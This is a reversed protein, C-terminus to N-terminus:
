AVGAENQKGLNLFGAGGGEGEHQAPEQAHLAAVAHVPELLPRHLDVSLLSPHSLSPLIIKKLYSVSFKKLNLGHLASKLRTGPWGEDALEHVM